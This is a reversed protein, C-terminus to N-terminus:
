ELCNLAALGEGHGAQKFSDVLNRLGNGPPADAPREGAGVACGVCRAHATTPVDSTATALTASAVLVTLTKKMM